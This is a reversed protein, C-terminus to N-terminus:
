ILREGTPCIQAKLMRALPERTVKGINRNRGREVNGSKEKMHLPSGTSWCGLGDDDKQVLPRGSVATTKSDRDSRWRLSCGNTM